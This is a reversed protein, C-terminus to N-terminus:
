ETGDGAYALPIDGVIVTQSIVFDTTIQESKSYGPLAIYIEASINLLVRHLTQNIGASSFDETIGATSHGTMTLKVHVDPGRGYFLAIGSLSGLPITVTREGMTQLCTSVALNIASKTQNIRVTDSEISIVKGVSDKSVNLYGGEEGEQELYASVERDITEVALARAQDVALTRLIPRVRADILLLVTLAVVLIAPLWFVIKRPYRRKIRMRRMRKM